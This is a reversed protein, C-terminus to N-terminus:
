APEPPDRLAALSPAQDAPKETPRVVIEHTSRVGEAQADGLLALVRQREAETPVSGTVRVSDAAEEIALNAMNVYGAELRDLIM